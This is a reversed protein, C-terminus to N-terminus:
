GGSLLAVLVAIDLAARATRLPEDVAYILGRLRIGGQLVEMLLDRGEPSLLWPVGYRKPLGVVRPLLDSEAVVVLDPAELGSEITCRGGGFILTAALGSDQAELGLRSGLGRLKGGHRQACEDLVGKMMVCLGNDESGTALTVIEM